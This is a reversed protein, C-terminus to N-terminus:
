LVLLCHRAGPGRGAYPGPMWEVLFRLALHLGSFCFVDNRACNCYKACATEGQRRVRCFFDGSMEAPEADALRVFDLFAMEVPNAFEAASEEVVLTGAAHKVQRAHFARGPEVRVEVVVLALGAAIADDGIEIAILGVYRPLVRARRSRASAPRSSEAVGAAGPFVLAQAAVVSENADRLHVPRIAGAAAVRDPIFLARNQGVLYRPDSSIPGLYRWARLCQVHPDPM